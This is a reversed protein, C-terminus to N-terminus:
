DQRKPILTTIMLLQPLITYCIRRRRLCSAAAADAAAAATRESNM